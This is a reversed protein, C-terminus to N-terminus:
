GFCLAEVASELRSESKSGGLVTCEVIDPPLLEDNAEILTISFPLINAQGHVSEFM